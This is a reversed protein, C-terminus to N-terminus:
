EVVGLSGSIKRDNIEKWLHLPLGFLEYRRCFRLGYEKHWPAVFTFCNRLQSEEDKVLECICGDIKKALLVLYDNMGSFVIEKFCVDKLKEKVEAM